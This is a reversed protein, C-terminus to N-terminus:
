NPLRYYAKKCVYLYINDLNVKFKKCGHSDNRM